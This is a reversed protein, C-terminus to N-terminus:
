GENGAPRKRVWTIQLPLMPVMCVYIYGHTCDLKWYIGVWLDRPEFLLWMSIHQGGRGMLKRITVPGRLM